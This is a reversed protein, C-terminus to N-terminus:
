MGISPEVYMAILQAMEGLAPDSTAKHVQADLLFWGQGLVEQADIIGSSEEDDTIFNPMGPTFLAPNFKAIEIQKKTNPNYLWIRAVYAQEGPDEQILLRGQYDMCINDFMRQDGGAIVIEITGGLEPRTVDNFHLKWLRSNSTFSATTVFYYDGSFSKRPDWVGDEPRLVQFVKKSTSDAQLAAGTLKSVDGNSGLPVLTFTGGGIFGSSSNGLGYTNDEATVAKGGATVNMGYLMGPHLGAKEVENGSSKKEGVFVYVDGLPSSDDMCMVVTKDGSFPSAPLNEWALRGMYPLAWGTGAQPGTVVWGWALGEGTEEGSLFIRESTGKAGSLFSTDTPLNASCLRNLAVTGAKFAGSASDWSYLKSESQILDEGTLVGMTNRDITWKSVFAGKSGHKRVAGATNGFEHNALLTFTRGQSYAGLGDMIGPMAYGNDAPKDGVTLLPFTFVGPISPVIYPTATTNPAALAGGLGLRSLILSGAGAAAGKILTRRSFRGLLGNQGIARIGPVSDQQERHQHAV